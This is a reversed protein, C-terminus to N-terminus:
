KDGQYLRAYKCATNEWTLELQRIRERAQIGMDQLVAPAACAQVIMRSLAQVDDVPAVYGCETDGLLEVIGPLDTALIVRGAAMAEIVVNPRGEAASFLALCHYHQLVDPVDHPAIPPKLTISDTAKHHEILTQITAREPGDGFIALQLQAGQAQALVCAQVLTTVRKRPILSGLYVIHVHQDQPPFPLAFFTSHVGNEITHVPCPVKHYNAFARTTQSLFPSVTTIAHVHQFIWAVVRALLPRTSVLSIEEGRITLLVKRHKRANALVGICGSVLWHCHLIDYQNQVRLTTLLMAIMLLPFLMLASPRSKIANLMGGPRHALTRLCAPAYWVRQVTINEYTETGAQTDDAPTIVTVKHGLAQLSTALAHVFIGSSPYAHSPYSTTLFLIRM